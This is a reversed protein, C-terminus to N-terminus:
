AGGLARLVGAHSGNKDQQQAVQLATRGASDKRAPDAGEELLAAAAEADGAKAATHIAYRTRLMTRKPVDVGKYGHEKLFAGVRSKRRGREEAAEARVAEARAAEAREAEAREAEARRAAERMAAELERRKREEAEEHELQRQDEPQLPEAGQGEEPEPLRARGAREEEEVYPLNPQAHEDVTPPM